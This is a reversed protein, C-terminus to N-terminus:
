IKEHKSAIIKYADNEQNKQQVLTSVEEEM